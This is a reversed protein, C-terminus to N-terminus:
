YTENTLELAAVKEAWLEVVPELLMEMDHRALFRQINAVQDDRIALM